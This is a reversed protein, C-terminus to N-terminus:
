RKITSCLCRKEVEVGSRRRMRTNPVIMPPPEKQACTEFCGKMKEEDEGRLM